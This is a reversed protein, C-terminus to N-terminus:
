QRMCKVYALQCEKVHLTIFYLNKLLDYFECFKRGIARGSMMSSTPPQLPVVAPTTHGYILFQASIRTTDFVPLAYDIAANYWAILKHLAIYATLVSNNFIGKKAINRHIPIQNGNLPINVPYEVRNLNEEIKSMRERILANKRADSLSFVGKYFKDNYCTIWYLVLGILMALAQTSCFAIKVYTGDSLRKEDKIKGSDQEVLVTGIIVAMCIASLICMATFWTYPQNADNHKHEKHLQVSCEFLTNEGAIIYHKESCITCRQPQQLDSM